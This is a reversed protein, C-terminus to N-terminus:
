MLCGRFPRFFTSVYEWACRWLFFSFGAFRSLIASKLNKKTEREMDGTKRVVNHIKNLFDSAVLGSAHVAVQFIIYRLLKSVIVCDCHPDPHHNPQSSFTVEELLLTLDSDIKMKRHLQSCMELRFHCLTLYPDFHPCIESM